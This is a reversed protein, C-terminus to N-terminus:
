LNPLREASSHTMSWYLTLVSGRLPMVLSGLRGLSGWYMTRRRPWTMVTLRSGRCIIM